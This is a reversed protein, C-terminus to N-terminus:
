GEFSIAVAAAPGVVNEVELPAIAGGPGGYTTSGLLALLRGSGPAGGVERVRIRTTPDGGTIEVTMRTTGAPPAPLPVTAAPAVPVDPPSTIVTGVSVATGGGGSAGGGAIPHGFGTLAAPAATVGVNDLFVRMFVSCPTISACILQQGSGSTSPGSSIRNTEVWPGDKGTAQEVRLRMAAASVVLFRVVGYGSVLRTPLSITGAPPISGDDEQLKFLEDDKQRTSITFSTKLGSGKSASM